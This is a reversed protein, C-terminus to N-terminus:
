RLFREGRGLLVGNHTAIGLEMSEAIRRAREMFHAAAQPPCKERVTAEFLALWRDFHTADVPLPLHVRMPQGHYQGSMLVVSSWFTCMRNLHKPWDAIRADFVPGLLSDERVRGYFSHVVREIMAEDIGTKESIGAAIQMRRSLVTMRNELLRNM